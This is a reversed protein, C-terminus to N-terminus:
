EIKLNTKLTSNNMRTTYWKLQMWEWAKMILNEITKWAFNQRLYSKYSRSMGYIKIIGHGPDNIYRYIIVRFTLSLVSLLCFADACIYKKSCGDSTDYIIGDKIFLKRMCETFSFKLKNVHLLQMRLMNMLFIHSFILRWMERM